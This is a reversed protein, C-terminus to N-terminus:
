MNKLWEKILHYIAKNRLKVVMDCTKLSRKIIYTENAVYIMMYELNM